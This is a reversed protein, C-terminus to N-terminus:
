SREPRQESAREALDDIADGVALSGDAVGADSGDGRGGAGAAQVSRASCGSYWGRMM